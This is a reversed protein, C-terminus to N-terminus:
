LKGEDAFSYYNEDGVILHDLVKIDLFEGSHKIKETLRIDSDSPVLRGSPHNHCLIINAANEELAIKFIRKPDVVTSDLGGESVCHISLKRNAKNLFLVWFQEYACNAVQPYILEFADSSSRIDKSVPVEQVRRRMGLELAAIITLAKTDGIGPIKKLDSITLKALSVLNNDAKFLLQRAVDVATLSPTGSRLLIALLEVDSLAAKGKTMLKERPKDESAWGKIGKERVKSSKDEGNVDNLDNNVDTHNVDSLDTRQKIDKNEM